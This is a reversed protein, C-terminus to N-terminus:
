RCPTCDNSVLNAVPQSCSARSIMLQVAGSNGIREPKVPASLATPQDVYSTSTFRKVAMMVLSLKAEVASQLRFSSLISPLLWPHCPHFVLILQRWVGASCGRLVHMMCPTRDCAHSQNCSM